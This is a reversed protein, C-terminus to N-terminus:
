AVHIAKQLGAYGHSTVRVIRWVGDHRSLLYTNSSASLGHEYYGGGVEVRHDDLWKPM